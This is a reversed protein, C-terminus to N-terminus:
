RGERLLDFKWKTPIEFNYYETNENKTGINTTVKVLRLVSCWDSHFIKREAIIGLKPHFLYDVESSNGYSFSTDFAGYKRLLYVKQNKDILFSDILSIPPIKNGNRFFVSDKNQRQFLVYYWGFSKKLLKKSTLIFTDKNSQYGEYYTSDNLWVRLHDENFLNGKNACADTQFTLLDVRHFNNVNKLKNNTKKIICSTMQLFLFIFILIINRLKM